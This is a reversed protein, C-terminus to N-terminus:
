HTTALLEEASKSIWVNVETLHQWALLFDSNTTQGKLGSIDWVTEYARLFLAM